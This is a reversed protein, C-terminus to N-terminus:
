YMLCVLELRNVQPYETVYELMNGNTMWQSVTCFEFLAPAAGEISLVNPHKVRKRLVVERYFEQSLLWREVM